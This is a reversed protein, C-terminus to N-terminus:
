EFRKFTSEARRSFASVQHIGSHSGDKLPHEKAQSGSNCPTVVGEDGCSRNEPETTGSFRNGDNSHILSLGSSYFNEVPSNFQLALIRDFPVIRGWVEAAVGAPSPPYHAKKLRSRLLL